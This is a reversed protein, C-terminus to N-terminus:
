WTRPRVQLGLHEGLEREFSDDEGFIRPYTAIAFVWGLQSSLRTRRDEDHEVDFEDGHFERGDYEAAVRQEVFASDLRYRRGRHEIPHDISPTPLGADLIRCGMWSEGHSARAGDIHPALEHAQKLYPVRRFQAVYELLHEKVVVEARVMADAAALAHPRFNLRLLDATTRLPSTIAAGNIDVVDPDPLTTQRSVARAPHPRSTGHRVVCMPRLDRFRGPPLTDVGYVWAASHDSIVAAEPLVLRLAAIRLDRTDPESGAVVVGRFLRRLEGTRILHRLEAASFDLAGTRTTAFPQGDNITRM